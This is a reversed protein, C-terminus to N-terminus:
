RVPAILLDRMCLLGGESCCRGFGVGKKTQEIYDTYDVIITTIEVTQIQSLAEETSADDRRRRKKEKECRFLTRM